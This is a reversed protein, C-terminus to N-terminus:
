KVIYSNKLCERFSNKKLGFVNETRAIMGSDINGWINGKEIEVISEETVKLLMAMDEISLNYGLRIESFLLCFSMLAGDPLPVNVLNEFAINTTDLIVM